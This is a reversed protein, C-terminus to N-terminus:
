LVFLLLYFYAVPAAFCISDLLDLVGGIGPLIKGSDKVDLSRKLISEALDVVMAALALLFGLVVVHTLSGLWALQGGSIYYIGFAGLQAVFLSGIYGEWSKAPSVHPIAKHKGILSGVAYAGMDTFKTVLVVFLVLWAGAHDGAGVPPLFSLRITFGAFLVPVYILSLLGMTVPVVSEPGAIEHRLRLTFGGLVVLVLAAAEPLFSGGPVPEAFTGNLYGWTLAGLYSLSVILAWVRCDTGPIRSTLRYFEVAGFAGLVAVALVLADQRGSLFVAGVGVWLLLTSFLRAGFVAARSKKKHDVGEM